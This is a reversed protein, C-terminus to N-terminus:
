RNYTSHCPIGSTSLPLRFCCEKSERGCFKGSANTLQLKYNNPPSVEAMREHNDLFLTAMRDLPDDSRGDLSQLAERAATSWEAFNIMVGLTLVLHDIVVCFEEERVFRSIKKFKSVVVSGMVALLPPKAFVDAGKSNNNTVNLALRLILLQTEGFDEPKQSLAVLLTDAIVPLFDSIWIAENHATRATISHSELASLALFFDIAQKGQPLDWTAPSSATKLIDFLKGTLEKSFIDGPNGAERTQRVMKELCKLAITRPSLVIPKLDEWVPLQRIHEHYEALLSQAVKSMNSKRDKCTTTINVENDLLRILLRTIGQRRLQPIIHPINGEAFTTMLISVIIFGAIIDTEQGLHVFLKEEAGNSRFQRTFTSKSDKLKNALDLLGSRRMSAQTGGPSGIREIYDDLEDIFKNNAGAQRLEHVSRITAGAGEEDDLDMDHFSALVPLTPISGRRTRRGSLDQSTSIPMEELAQMFDKEKEALMTRERGYVFKPGAIQSGQSATQKSSVAEPALSAGRSAYGGLEESGSEAGNESDDESHESSAQEVLLDILRRRPADRPTKQAAKSIGSSKVTQNSRMPPSTKRSNSGRGAIKTSTNETEDDEDDQELIDKWLKMGRPSIYKGHPDVDMMDVDSLQPSPTNQVPGACKGAQVPQATAKRPTEIIETKKLSQAKPRAAITSVAGKSPISTMKSLKSAKSTQESLLLAGLKSSKAVTSTAGTSTLSVMTRPKPVTSIAGMSTMSTMKPPKAITKSTPLVSKTPILVPQKVQEGKPSLRLRKRKDTDVVVETSAQIKESSLARTATAKLPRKKPRPTVKVEEDSSPVDFVNAKVISVSASPASIKPGTMPKPAVRKPKPKPAPVEDESPIEYIDTEVPPSPTPDVADKESTIRKSPKQEPAPSMHRTAPFQTSIQVEPTQSKSAGGFFVANYETNASPM